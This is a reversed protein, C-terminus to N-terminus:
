GRKRKALVKELEAGRREDVRELFEVRDLYGDGSRRAADLDDRLGDTSSVHAQWDLASKDLTSLKKPKPKSTPDMLVTKRKRPGPRPKPPAPAPDSTASATSPGASPPEAPASAPSSPVTSEAADPSGPANWRPWTRADDSDEPVEVVSVIDEGAFRYRKEVKVM